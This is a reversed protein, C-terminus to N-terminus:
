KNVPFPLKEPEKVAIGKIEISKPSSPDSFPLAM